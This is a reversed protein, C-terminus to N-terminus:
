IHANAAWGTRDSSASRPRAPATRSPALDVMLGEVATRAAAWKPDTRLQRNRALQALAHVVRRCGVPSPMTHDVCATLPHERVHVRDVVRIAIAGHRSARREESAARRCAHSCWIPPRGMRKRIISAGCRPCHQSTKTTTDM